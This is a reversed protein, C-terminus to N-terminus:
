RKPKPLGEVLAFYREYFQPAAVTESAVKVMSDDSSGIPMSVSGLV